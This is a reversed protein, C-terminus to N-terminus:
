TRVFFLDLGLNLVTAILLYILASFSDGMGRLIGSLINYFAMGAVGIMQIKLYDACDYIITEPTNLARLLPMIIPPAALM